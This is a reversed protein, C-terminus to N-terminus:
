LETTDYLMLTKLTKACITNINVNNSNNIGNMCNNRNNNIKNNIKAREVAFICTQILKEIQPNNNDNNAADVVNDVIEDCFLIRPHTEYVSILDDRQTPYESVVNVNEFQLATHIRDTELISNTYFHINLVVRAKAILKLLDEGFVRNVVTIKIGHGTQLQGMILKLISERRANIGGYFLIDIPAMEPIMTGIEHVQNYIPPILIKIFKRLETPYYDVNIASYDYSAVSNRILETMVSGFVTKVMVDGDSTIKNNKNKDNLQELQYICYKHPDPLSSSDTVLLQPILIFMLESPNERNRIVDSSHVIQDCTIGSTMIKLDRLFVQSLGRTLNAVYKTTYFHVTKFKSKYLSTM